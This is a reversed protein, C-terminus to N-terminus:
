EYCKYTSNNDFNLNGQAPTFAYLVERLRMFDEGFLEDEGISV